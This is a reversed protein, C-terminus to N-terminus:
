ITFVTVSSYWNALTRLYISRCLMIFVESWKRKSQSINHKADVHACRWVFILWYTTSRVSISVGHYRRFHRARLLTSPLTGLVCFLLTDCVSFRFSRYATLVTWALSFSLIWSRSRFHTAYAACRASIVCSSVATSHSRVRNGVVARRALIDWLSAAASRSLLRIACECTRAVPDFVAKARRAMRASTEVCFQTSLKAFTTQWSQAASWHISFRTCAEPKVSILECNVM